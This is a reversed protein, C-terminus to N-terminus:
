LCKRKGSLLVFRWWGLLQFKSKCSTKRRSDILPNLSSFCSVLVHHLYPTPGILWPQSVYVFHCRITNRLTTVNTTTIPIIEMTNTLNNTSSNSYDIILMQCFVQFHRLSCSRICHLCIWQVYRHIIHVSTVWQLCLMLGWLCSLVVGQMWIQLWLKMAGSRKLPIQLYGTKAYVFWIDEKSFEM